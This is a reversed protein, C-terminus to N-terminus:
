NFGYHMQFYDKNYVWPDYGAQPTALIGSDSTLCMLVSFRLIM